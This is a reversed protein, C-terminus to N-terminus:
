VVSKRDAHRLITNAAQRATIGFVFAGGEILASSNSFSVVPVTRPLARLVAPVEAELLPGLVLLPDFKRVAKAVNAAGQATGGTDLVKFANKDSDM